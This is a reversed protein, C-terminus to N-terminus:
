CAPVSLNGDHDAEIWRDAVRELIWLLNNKGKCSEIEAALEAITEDKTEAYDMWDMDMAEVYLAKAILEPSFREDSFM